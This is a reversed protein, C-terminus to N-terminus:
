ISSNYEFYKYWFLRVAIYFIYALIWYYLFRFHYYHYVDILMYKLFWEDAHKRDHENWGRWYNFDHIYASAIWLWPSLLKLIFRFFPNDSPWFWNIINNEKLYNIEEITLEKFQKKKLSSENM